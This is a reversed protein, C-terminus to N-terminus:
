SGELAAIAKDIRENLARLGKFEAELVSMRAANRARDAKLVAIPDAPAARKTGNGNLPPPEGNVPAVDETKGDFVARLQMVDVRREMADGPSKISVVRLKKWPAKVVVGMRKTETDFVADGKRLNNSFATM